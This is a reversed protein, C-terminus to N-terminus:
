RQSPRHIPSRDDGRRPREDLLDTRPPGTPHVVIRRDLDKGISETRVGEDEGLAVHVARREYPHMPDMAYREGTRKVRHAIRVALERVQEERRARYREVDIILRRGEHDDDGLMLNLVTQLSRLMEGRWGILLGLDEGSVDLIVPPDGETQLTAPARRVSITAPIDMRRLLEALLTRGRRTHADLQRVRVRAEGGSVSEGPVAQMGRSVIDVEADDRQIGLQELAATIAAEVTAGGTEVVGPYQPAEAGM